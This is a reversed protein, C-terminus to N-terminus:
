DGTCCKTHNHSWTRVLPTYVSTSSSSRHSPQCFSASEVPLHSQQGEGGRRWREQKGSHPHSSQLELLWKSWSTVMLNSIVPWSPHLTFWFFPSLRSGSLVHSWWMLGFKHSEWMKEMLFVYVDIKNLAVVMKLKRDCLGSSIRICDKVSTLKCAVDVQFCLQSWTSLLCTGAVPLCFVDMSPATCWPKCFWIRVQIFYSAYIQSAGPYIVISIAQPLGWLALSTWIKNKLTSTCDFYAM